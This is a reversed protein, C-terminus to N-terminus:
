DDIPEVSQSDGNPKCVYVEYQIQTYLQANM